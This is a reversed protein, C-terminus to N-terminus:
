KNTFAQTGAIRAPLHNRDGAVLWIVPRLENSVACASGSTHVLYQYSPRSILQTIKELLGSLIPNDPHVRAGHLNSRSDASAPVQHFWTLQPSIDHKEGGAGPIVEHIALAMNM